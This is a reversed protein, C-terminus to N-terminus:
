RVMLREVTDAQRSKLKDLVLDLVIRARMVRILVHEIANLGIVHLLGRSNHGRENVLGRHAVFLERAFGRRSASIRGAWITLKRRRDSDQCLSRPAPSNELTRRAAM